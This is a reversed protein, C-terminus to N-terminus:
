DNPAGNAIWAEIAAIDAADLLEGPPMPQGVMGSDGRLKVLLYSNAPTGPDVIPTGAGSTVGVMAGYAASAELDPPTAGAAHCASTACRPVLVAEVISSFTSGAGGALPALGHVVEVSMAGKSHCNGCTEVGGVTKSAVHAFTAGTAHCGLCAAQIPPTSPEDPLPPADKGSAHRIEAHENALTPPADAPLAEPLYSKGAHCLTCNRLDNPFGGRDFFYAKGYYVVYPAIGELSAAGKRAGTHTRHIMMKFHASREEIGDYTAGLNVPGGPYAKPRKDWDTEDPTHCTVCSAVQHRLGHFEIRDHCRLCKQQDVVTRRPVPDPSGSPPPWVGSATNVYVIVEDPSENIQEGTYPWLFVDNTTDYHKPTFNRRAEMAVVFTGTTGAPVTSTFTYVYEDTGSTTSLTTPDPNGASPGSTIQVSSHYAYDPTTPGMIRITLGPASSTPPPSYSSFKRPVYSTTALDPDYPSVDYAPVPAGLTPGLPGADDRVRFRVTPRGGPVLDDVGLIEIVPKNFRPARAPPVHIDAIPAYLRSEPATAAVHCEGCQTDDDQPGGPHPFRVRDVAPSSRQYWVDPHCGSCTRRSISSTVVGGQPAAGHCIACDRLDRPFMGGAVITMTGIPTPDTTAVVLPQAFVVEHGDEGVISYKRGLVPLNRATGGGSRTPAFPLPLPKASPVTSAGAPDWTSAYVTPLDKGRHIRHVMRGLELPNPDTKTTTATTVLAAPDITDPDSNQWTHCTLCLRVRTRSGHTVVTGHCRACSEDSVVDRGEAPVGSPTFDHTSATDISPAPARELWVGVRITDDAGVSSLADKFVYRYRGGGLDVFSGSAESGPQRASTLIEPDPTGPGSPPLRTAIQEGTLLLSKWERLRDVPHDALTALTFRPELGELEDRSIPVDAQTVAFTAVVHGHLDLRAEELVIKPGASVTAGTNRPGVSPQQCAAVSLCLGLGALGFARASGTQRGRM